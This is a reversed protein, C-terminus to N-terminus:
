AIIKAAQRFLNDIQSETLGIAIAMAAITPSSREFVQADAWALQAIINDSAAIAADVSPVLGALALAGSARFRSASAPVPTRGLRRDADSRLDALRKDTNERFERIEAMIADHRYACMKVHIPLSQAEEDLSVRERDTM